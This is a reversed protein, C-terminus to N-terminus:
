GSRGLEAREPQTANGSFARTTNTDDPLEKAAPVVVWALIAAAVLCLVGVAAVGGGWWTAAKSRM